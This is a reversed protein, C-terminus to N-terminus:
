QSSCKYLQENKKRFKANSYEMVSLVGLIFDKSVGRNYYNQSEITFSDSYSVKCWQSSSPNSFIITDGEEMIDLFECMGAM